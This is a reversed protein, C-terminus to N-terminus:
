TTMWAAALCRDRDSSMASATLAVIRPQREGPLSDRIRRTTEIGDMVPMQMDMLVVDFARMALQALVEEGNTAM